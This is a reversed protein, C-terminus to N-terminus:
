PRARVLESGTSEHGGHVVQRHRTSVSEEGVVVVVLCVERSPGHAHRGDARYAHTGRVIEANTVGVQEHRVAEDHMVATLEVVGACHHADILREHARELDELGSLLLGPRDALVSAFSAVLFSCLLQPVSPSRRQPSTSTQLLRATAVMELWPRQM